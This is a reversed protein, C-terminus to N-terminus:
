PSFPLLPFAAPFDPRAVPWLRGIMAPHHEDSGTTLQNVYLSRTM